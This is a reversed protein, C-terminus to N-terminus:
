PKFHGVYEAKSALRLRVLQQPSAHTVSQNKLLLGASAFAESVLQFCPVRGPSMADALNVERIPNLNPAVRLEARPNEFFAM